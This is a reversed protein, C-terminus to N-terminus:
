KFGLAFSLGNSAGYSLGVCLLAIGAGASRFHIPSWGGMFAITYTAVMLISAQILALDALIDGRFADLIGYSSFVYFNVYKTKKNMEIAKNQVAEEFKRMKTRGIEKNYQFLYVKQTALAKELNNTGNDKDQTVTTPTTGGFATKTTVIRGFGTFIHGKGSQVNKM